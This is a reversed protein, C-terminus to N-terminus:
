QVLSIGTAYLHTKKASTTAFTAVYAIPSISSSPSPHRIYQPLRPPVLLHPKRYMEVDITFLKMLQNLCTVQVKTTLLSQWLVLCGLINDQLRVRTNHVDKLRM